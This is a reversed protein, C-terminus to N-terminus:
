PRSHLTRAETVVVAMLVDLSDRPVEPVLQLEFAVGMICADPRAHSLLRDYYGQGYGLRGGQADFALGPVVFVDVDAPEMRPDDVAPEDIGIRNRELVSNATVVHLALVSDVEIRPLLMTKDDAHIAALLPRTDLEDGFAAYACVVKSSQYAAHKLVRAVAAASLQSRQESTLSARLARMRKRLLAKDLAM